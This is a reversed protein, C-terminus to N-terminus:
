PRTARGSWCVALPLLLITLGIERSVLLTLAAVLLVFALVTLRRASM